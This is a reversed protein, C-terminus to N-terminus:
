SAYMGLGVRLFSLVDIRLICLCINNEKESGTNVSLTM